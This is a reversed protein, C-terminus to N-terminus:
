EVKRVSIKNEAAALYANLQKILEQGREYKQLADDVGVAENQMDSLLAQLEAMAAVYDFEKKAM